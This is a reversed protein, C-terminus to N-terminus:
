MRAQRARRALGPRTVGERLVGNVFLEVLQPDFQTGANRVLEEVAEQPPLAETYPRTTTMADYADCIAILRSAFPIQEAAIRDPYGNGDWREHTSRITRAVDGLGHAVGVIREGVLTHQRVLAWEDPELPEPKSLIAEPLALKGVDHLEAATRVLEADKGELGAHRALATAYAVVGRSHEGLYHDREILAQVLVGSSDDALLRSGKEAYMRRDAVRLAESASAAEAPILTYGSSCTIAFGEGSERLSATAAARVWALDILEGDLLICFEDGGLRFVEGRSAVSRRLRTGLRSLLIDGAEHGFSDNYSKFGDLDFLLLLRSPGDPERFAGGLRELLARRNGLGTLADTLSETRSVRLLALHEDFTLAMRAIVAILGLSAIALALAGVRVFHDQIEVALCVAALFLPAALVRRGELRMRAVGRSPACSAIAILVFGAPWGLDLITGLDYTGNAVQVLYISDAIGFLVLGSALLLWARDISWGSLAFAALVLCLLLADGAPYAMNTAVAAIGGTSSHWVDALVVGSAVASVACAAIFGDLWISASFRIVRERVLLGIGVFVPPYFGLYGLDALSPYPPSKVTELAATWYIDGATWSLVGAGIWIWARRERGTLGRLVCTLGAAIGVVDYLWNDFLREVSPGGLHGELQVAVAAFLVVTATLAAPALRSTV